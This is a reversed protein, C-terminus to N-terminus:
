KKEGLATRIETTHQIASFILLLIDETIEGDVMTQLIDNIDLAAKKLIERIAEIKNM